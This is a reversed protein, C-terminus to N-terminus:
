VKSEWCDTGSHRDIMLWSYTTSNFFLRKLELPAVWLLEYLEIKGTIKCKELKTESWVVMIILIIKNEGNDCVEVQNWRTHVTKTSHLIYEVCFNVKVVYMILLYGFYKDSHKILCNVGMEKILTWTVDMTLSYHDICKKTKCAVLKYTVLAWARLFHLLKQPESIM